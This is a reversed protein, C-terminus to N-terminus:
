PRNRMEILRKVEELPIGSDPDADDEAARRLLEQKQDSSLGSSRGEAVISDWIDQVLAIRDEVSLRDIGLSQMTVSM